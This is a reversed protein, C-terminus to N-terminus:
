RIDGDVEVRNTGAFFNIRPGVNTNAMLSGYLRIEPYIGSHGICNTGGSTVIVIDRFTTNTNAATFRVAPSNATASLSVIKVRNFTNTSTTDQIQVGNATTTTITGDEFTQTGNALGIVPNGGRIHRFKFSIISNSLINVTVYSGSDYFEGDGTINVRGMDSIASDDFLASSGNINTTIAGSFFHWHVNSKLLSQHNTYIGPYVFITDGALANTKARLLTLFPKAADGRAGTTDDGSKSVFVSNSANVTGGGGGSGPTSITFWNTDGRSILIMGGGSTNIVKNTSTDIRDDGSALQITINTTAANSGQDKIWYTLNSASAATPLTLAVAGTTTNVGVYLDSLALTYNTSITIGRLGFKTFLSHGIGNTNKPSSVAQGIGSAVNTQTTESEVTFPVRVGIASGVTQTAYTVRAYTTPGFLVEMAQTNTGRLSVNTANPSSVTIGAFPYTSAHVLFQQAQQQINTGINTAIRIQTTPDFISNTFTRTDGNVHIVANSIAVANTLNLANTFTITATIVQASASYSLLTVIALLAGLKQFIRM